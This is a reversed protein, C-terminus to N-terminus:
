CLLMLSYHRCGNRVSVHFIYGCPLVGTFFFVTPVVPSYIDDRFPEVHTVILYSITASSAAIFLKGLGLILSGVGALATFRGANRLMLYFSEHASTCFGKGTLAIQIYANNNIFRVFREFCDFCCHM